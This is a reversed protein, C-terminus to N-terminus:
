QIFTGTRRWRTNTFFDIVPGVAPTANRPASEDYSWIVFLARGVVLERPVFGFFRSDASNDRNDGMVFYSGSPIQVPGDVAYTFSSSVYPLSGPPPAITEPTYYVTYLEDPRRPPVSLDRLEARDNGRDPDRTIVRHEPLVRGDILIDAGRVEVTEGPLGIVRKIYLTQYQVIKDSTGKESPYKFVIIDGRRIERQPLLLADPGPAFIFKNILFHDGVYITNEMSATPVAAAQAVFTMFFLAMIFTVAASEFYERPLGRRPGEPVAAETPATSSAASDKARATVPKKTTKTPPMKKSM